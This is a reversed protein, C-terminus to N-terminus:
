SNSFGTTAVKIPLPLISSILNKMLSFLIVRTINSSSKDGTWALFKSFSNSTLTISLLPSIRSIKALLAFVM